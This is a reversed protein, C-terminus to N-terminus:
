STARAASEIVTTVADPKSVMSLHSAKVKTIKSKARDAMQQQLAPPLIADATGLVYWSPLVKWAVPGSPEVLAGFTIPRQAAALEAATAAPLDAAFVQSYVATKIYLDADGAPAGPYQVFDFLATPDGGGNQLGLLTEGQDPVFADVYVLAAVDPDSLGANSIVAGGYSHGVLIVPGTTRQQLFAALYAADSSLGRLPNPAALVTYGDHQLRSNVKEWSSADAWAGHVLVITPKTRQPHGVAPAALGLAAGVVAVTVVVSRSLKSM